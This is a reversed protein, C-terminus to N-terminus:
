RAAWPSRPGRRSARAAELLAVEDDHGRARGHALGREAQVDGLVRRQPRPLGDAEEGELHRLLLQHEAHEAGVCADVGMAQARALELLLVPRAQGLGVGVEGVRADVDVVRGHDRGQLHPRLAPAELGLVAEAEDDDVVQLEHGAGAADLVALLLDGRDAARELAQGLLQPKGHDRERLEGAGGLGAGVLRGCSESRRSDPAISCSASM